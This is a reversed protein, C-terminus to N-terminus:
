STNPAGACLRDEWGGKFLTCELAEQIHLANTSLNYAREIAGTSIFRAEPLYRYGSDAPNGLM